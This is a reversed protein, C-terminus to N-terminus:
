RKESLEPIRTRNVKIHEHNEDCWDNTGLMGYRFVGIPGCSVKCMVGPIGNEITSTDAPHEAGYIHGIEHQYLNYRYFDSLDTSGLLTVSPWAVADAFTSYIEQDAGMRQGSFGSVIDAGHDDGPWNVGQLPWNIRKVMSSMQEGPSAPNIGGLDDDSEWRGWSTIRLGISSGKGPMEEGDPFEEDFYGNTKFVIDRIYPKYDPHQARFEEDTAALVDAFETYDDPDTNLEFVEGQKYPDSKGPDIGGITHGNIQQIGRGGDPAGDGDTDPNIPNTGSTLGAVRDDGRVSGLDGRVAETVGKVEQGDTLGDDDTDPDVPDTDVWVEERNSLWADTRMEHDLAEFVLGSDGEWEHGRRVFDSDDTYDNLRRDGLDVPSQDERIIGLAHAARSYRYRDWDASLWDYYLRNVIDGQRWRTSLYTVRDRPDTHLKEKEVLDTAGDGDTDDALPNSDMSLEGSGGPDYRIHNNGDKQTRVTWGKVEDYDSVGDGDTDESVPSSILDYHDDKREGMEEGDLLGDGDTDPNAPDTTIRELGQIPVDTQMGNMEDYDSLGDGDFDIKKPDGGFLKVADNNDFTAEEVSHDENVKVFVRTPSSPVTWTVSATAHSNGLVDVTDTGILTMSDMEDGAYFKVPVNEADKKEKNHVQADIRVTDGSHLNPVTPDDTERWTSLILDWEIVTFVSFHETDAEIYNGEPNVSQNELVTFEGTTRNFFALRLGEENGTVRSENYRIRLTASSFNSNSKIDITPLPDKKSYEGLAENSIQEIQINEAIDGKGKISIEVSGNEDEVKQTFTENGDLIGDGDTDKLLPNTGLAPERGDLLGDGDTDPDMPTTGIELEETDNLGDTDSDVLIPDSGVQQEELNTLTDSDLDEEGDSVNNGDTDESLPSTDSASVEFGDWLGDGDSDQDFQDTGLRFEVMVTLYDGDLDEEGDLVGDNAENREPTLSSDSDPDLPDTGTANREYFDPLGDGDLLRTKSWTANNGARDTAVVTIVNTGNSLNISHTFTGDAGVVVPEGNVTVSANPETVGRLSYAPDEVTPNRTLESVNLGPPTNDVSVNVETSNM